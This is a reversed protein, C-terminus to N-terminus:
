LKGDEIMKVLNKGLLSSHKFHKKLIERLAVGDQQDADLPLAGAAAGMACIDRLLALNEDIGDLRRLVFEQKRDFGSLAELLVIRAAQGNSLGRTQAEENLLECEAQSIRFAINHSRSQSNMKQNEFFHKCKYVDYYISKIIYQLIELSAVATKFIKTYMINMRM